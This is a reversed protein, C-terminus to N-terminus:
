CMLTPITVAGAIPHIHSINNVTAHGDQAANLAYPRIYLFGGSICCQCESMPVFNNGSGQQMYGIVPFTQWWFDTGDYMGLAYGRNPASTVCLQLAQSFGTVAMTINSSYAINADPLFFTVIDNDLKYGIDYQTSTNWASPWDTKNFYIHSFPYHVDCSGSVIYNVIQKAIEYTGDETPHFNDACFLNYNHMTFEANTMYGCGYQTAGQWAPLTRQVILDRTASALTASWAFHGVSIKANKYKAHVKGFANIIGSEIDAISNNRDNYGGVFFVDTVEDPDFVSVFNDVDYSFSYNPDLSFREGGDASLDFEVNPVNTLMSTLITRFNTGTYGAPVDTVYSDGYIIIKRTEIISLREDLADIDDNIDSIDGNIGPITTNVITNVDSEVDDVRSNVAALGTTYDAIKLWYETNSLLVNNPVPKLSLYGDHTDPDSVITWSQYQKSIDWDGGFTISHLAEFDTLSSEFEKVKKILWDLNYENYDTYPYKNIAM